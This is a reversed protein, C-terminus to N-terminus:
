EKSKSQKRRRRKRKSAWIAREQREAKKRTSHQGLKRAGDRTYLCWEKRGKGCRAIRGLTM